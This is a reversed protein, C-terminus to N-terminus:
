LGQYVTAKPKWEKGLAWDANYVEYFYDIM